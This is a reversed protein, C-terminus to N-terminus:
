YKWCFYGMPLYFTMGARRGAYYAQAACTAVAATCTVNVVAAMGPGGKFAAATVPWCVTQAGWWSTAARKTETSDLLVDLQGVRAGPRVTVASAPSVPLVLGAAALTTTAALAAAVKRKKGHAAPVPSAVVPACETTNMTPTMQTDRNSRM